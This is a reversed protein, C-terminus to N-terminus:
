RGIECGVHVDPQTSATTNDLGWCADTGANGILVDVGKRGLLTDSGAGGELHDQGRGGNLVDLGRGGFVTDRGGNGLLVDAGANGEILDRGSGGCIIDDGAQGSIQDHGGLGVIVDNGATGVIVDDGNTGIITAPLGQCTPLTTAPVAVPAPDASTPSAVPATPDFGTVTYSFNHAQGNLLVNSINVRYDVDATTVPLNPVEWGLTPLGFGNAVPLLSVSVSQGNQSMTVRAQSFDAGERSISWREFIVDHPVYGAPPWSVWASAGQSNAFDGIVEVVGARSTSGLGVESLSPYLLWRRHGLAVNSAGPDEIQGAVGRSGIVGLTLNARGASEAGASSFCAWTSGPSHSLSNQAHMMLAAEQARASAAADAVITELGAMQRFWNISGLTASHFATSARGADCGDVSGSWSHPVLAAADVSAPYSQAVEVRDSADIGDQQATLAGQSTVIVLITALLSGIAGIAVRRLIV